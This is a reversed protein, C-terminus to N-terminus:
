LVTNPHELTGSIKLAAFGRRDRRQKLLIGVLGLQQELADSARVHLTLDVFSQPLPENLTVKGQVDVQWDRGRIQFDKVVVSRQQLTLEGTLQEYSLSPVQVGGIDLGGINGSDGQITLRGNGEQWGGGSLQLTMSGALKGDGIAKGLKVALPHAAPRFDQLDVRIGLNPGRGNSEWEVAGLLTGGYFGGEFGIRVLNAFPHLTQLQVQLDPLRVLEVSQGNVDRDVTVENFTLGAPLLPKVSGIHIQELGHQSLTTLVFARVQQSPFKLYIFLAFLALAYCLYGSVILVQRGIWM